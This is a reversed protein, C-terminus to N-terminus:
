IGVTFHLCNLRLGSLINTRLGEGRQLIHNGFCFCIFLNLFIAISQGGCTVFSEAPDACAIYMTVKHVSFNRIFGDCM